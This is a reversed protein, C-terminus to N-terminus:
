TGAPLSPLGQFLRCIAQLRRHIAPPVHSSGMLPQRCAQPPGRTSVPPRSADPVVTPPFLLLPPADGEYRLSWRLAHDGSAARGELGAGNLTSEGIRVDLGADSFTCDAIPVVEKVATIRDREGDFHIANYDGSAGAYMVLQVKAIPDKVIEPLRDGARYSM